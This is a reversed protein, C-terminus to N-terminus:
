NKPIKGLYDGEHWLRYHGDVDMQYMNNWEQWIFMEMSSDWFPHYRLGADTIRVIRDDLYIKSRGSNENYWRNFELLMPDHYEGTVSETELTTGPATKPHQPCIENERWKSYSCMKYIESERANALRLGDIDIARVDQNGPGCPDTLLLVRNEYDYVRTSRCQDFTLIQPNAMDNIDFRAFAEVFSSLESGEGDERLKSISLLFVDPGLWYAAGASSYGDIEKPIHIIEDSLLNVILHNVEIENRKNKYYVIMLKRDHSIAVSRELRSTTNQTAEVIDFAIREDDGKIDTQIIQNGEIFLYSWKDNEFLADFEPESGLETPPPSKPDFPLYWLLFMPLCCLLLVLISIVLLTKKASAPKDKKQKTM